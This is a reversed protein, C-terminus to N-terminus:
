EARRGLLWYTQVEGLGKVQMPERPEFVYLPQLAAYTAPGVQIRGPAGKSEMRSAVNVTHGWLDYCLRKRGIVGAVVPGSNIGIRLELPFGTTQRLAAVSDLMELAFAAMAQAHDPQALPMGAIVMYEDGMTKIKELGHRDVLDDFASFVLNLLAVLESPTLTAAITMFGVLDAFLVTVSERYDAITREGGKLRDAISQPLINTLLAESNAREAQLLAEAERREQIELQLRQNAEALQTQIALREAELRKRDSIHRVTGTYYIQQKQSDCVMVATEAIWIQRGDRRYVQSEFQSIEGTKAIIQLFQNRRDADVYLRGHFNPQDQLLSEPSDYGYLRALAPNVKLYRGQADTQFIGDTICEFLNRCIVEEAAQRAAENQIPSCCASAENALDAQNELSNTPATGEDM